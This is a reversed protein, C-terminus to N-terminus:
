RADQEAAATSDAEKWGHAVDAEQNQPHNTTRVRVGM